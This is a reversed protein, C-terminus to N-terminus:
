RPIGYKAKLKDISSKEKTLYDDFQTVVKPHKISSLQFDVTKNPLDKDFVLLKPQKRKETLYYNMVITSAFVGDIRGLEGMKILADFSDSSHFAIRNSQIKEMYPWPTFGRMAGITKLAALGKGMQKPRVFLGETVTLVPRSYSVWLGKRMETNWTPNDPFKLDITQRRLLEDHLRLVPMPTIKLTHGSYAAFGDLLERSFGTYQNDDGKYIPYYEISEVGVVLTDARAFGFALLGLVCWVLRKVNARRLLSM